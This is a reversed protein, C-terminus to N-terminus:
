GTTDESFALGNLEPDHHQNLLLYDDSSSCLDGSTGSPSRHDELITRSKMQSTMNIQDQVNHENRRTHEHSSKKRETMGGGITGDQTSCQSSSTGAVEIYTSCTVFQSDTMSDLENHHPRRNRKQVGNSNEVGKFKGSSCGM